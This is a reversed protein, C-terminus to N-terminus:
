KRPFPPPVEALGRSRLSNLVLLNFFHMGGLAVVVIGLKWSLHEVVMLPRSPPQGTALFLLMFGVNVLYFGVILLHNVSDAMEANGHFADVLFPRGSRFLTRGVWITVALAVVFYIGYEWFSYEDTLEVPFAPLITTTRNYSSQALLM